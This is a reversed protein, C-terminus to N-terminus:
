KFTSNYWGSDALILLHKNPIISYGKGPFDTYVKKNVLDKEYVYLLPKGILHAPPRGDAKWFSPYVNEFYRTYHFPVVVEAGAPMKEALAYLQRADGDPYPDLGFKTKILYSVDAGLLSPRTEITFHHAVLFPSLLFQFLCGTLIWTPANQNPVVGSHSLRYGLFVFASLMFAWLGGIRPPYSVGPYITPFYFLAETAFMVFLIGYGVGLVCIILNKHQLKRLWPVFPLLGIGFTALGVSGSFLVYLFLTTSLQTHAFAHTLRSPRPGNLHALYWLGAAFLALCVGTIIWNRRTLVYATWHKGPNSLVLDVVSCFLLLCCILVVSSEKVLFTLVLWLMAFRWKRQALSLSLLALLPIFYQEPHWGFYDLYIFYAMPGFVFIVGTLWAATRAPVDFRALSKYWIWLFLAFLGIYAMFLGYVGMPKTLLGVIPILYYNHQQAHNGYIPDFLLPRGELWGRSLQLAVLGDAYQEQSTQFQFVKLFFWVVCGIVPLLILLAKASRSM